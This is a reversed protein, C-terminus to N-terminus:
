QHWVTAQPEIHSNINGNKQSIRYHEFYVLLSFHTRLSKKCLFAESQTEVTM